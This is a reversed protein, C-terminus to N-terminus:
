DPSVAGWDSHAHSLDSIDTWSSHVLTLLSDNWNWISETLVYVRRLSCIIKNDWFLSNLLDHAWLWDWSNVDLEVLDLVLELLFQDVFDAASHAFLERVHWELAFSAVFDEALVALEQELLVWCDNLIFVQDLFEHLFITFEQISGWGISLGLSHLPESSLILFRSSEVSISILIILL